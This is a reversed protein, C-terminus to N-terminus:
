EGQSRSPLENEQEQANEPVNTVERVNSAAAEGIDETVIENKTGEIFNDTQFLEASSFPLDSKASDEAIPESEYVNSSPEVATTAEPEPLDGILDLFYCVWSFVSIM